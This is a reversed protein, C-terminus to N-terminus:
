QDLYLIVAFVPGIFSMGSRIVTMHNEFCINHWAQILTADL